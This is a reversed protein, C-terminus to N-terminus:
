HRSSIGATADDRNQEPDGTSENAGPDTADKGALIVDGAPDHRDYSRHDQQQKISQKKFGAQLRVCDPNYRHEGRGVCRCDIRATAGLPSRSM